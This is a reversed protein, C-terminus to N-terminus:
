AAWVEMLIPSAVHGNTAEGSPGVYIANTADLNRVLIPNGGDVRGINGTFLLTGGATTAVSIQVSDIAM